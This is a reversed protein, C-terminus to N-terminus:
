GVGGLWIMAFTCIICGVLILFFTQLTGAIMNRGLLYHRWTFEPERKPAHQEKM